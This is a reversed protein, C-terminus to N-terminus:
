WARRWLWRLALSFSIFLVAIDARGPRLIEAWVGMNWAVMMLITVLVALPIHRALPAAVLLVFLLSLAHIM